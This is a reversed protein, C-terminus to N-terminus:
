ALIDPLDGPAMLGDIQQQGSTQVKSKPSQVTSENAEQVEEARRSVVKKNGEGYYHEEHECLGPPSSLKPGM